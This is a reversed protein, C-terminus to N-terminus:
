PSALLYGNPVLEGIIVHEDSYLWTETTALIDVDNELVFDYNHLSPKIM